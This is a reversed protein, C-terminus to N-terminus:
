ILYGAIRLFNVLLTRGTRFYGDKLYDFDKRLQDEGIRVLDPDENIWSGFMEENLEFHCQIGYASPAARVVQNLCTRGSALLKMWETLVVTEGHLQFVILHDNLGKFLPDSRGEETLNIKFFEGNEERFGAEPTKCKVVEGGAAKVLTQLGLCIGLYPIGEALVKRILALEGLMKPSADNASDNGGFVIVAGYDEVPGATEGLSLEVVRTRLNNEAIIDELLGAGERLMNKLILIEKKEGSRM